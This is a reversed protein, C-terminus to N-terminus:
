NKKKQFLLFRRDSRNFIILVSRTKVESRYTVVMNVKKETMVIRYLSKNLTRNKKCHKCINRVQIVKNVYLVSFISVQYQVNNIPVFIDLMDSYQSKNFFSFSFQNYSLFSLLIRYYNILSTIVKAIHCQAVMWYIGRTM